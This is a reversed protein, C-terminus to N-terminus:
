IKQIAQVLKEVRDCYVDANIPTGNMLFGDEICTVEVKQDNKYFVANCNENGSQWSSTADFYGSIRTDQAAIWTFTNIHPRTRRIGNLVTRCAFPTSPNWIFIPQNELNENLPHLFASESFNCSEICQPYKVFYYRWDEENNLSIWPTPKSLYEKIIENLTHECDPQTQRLRKYSDAFLYFAHKVKENSNTLGVLWQNETKGGFRVRENTIPLYFDGSTALLARTLLLGIENCPTFLESLLPPSLVLQGQADLIQGITGRLFPFDEAEHYNKLVSSNKAVYLAKQKEEAMQSFMSNIVKDDIEALVKYGTNAINSFLHETIFKVINGINEFRLDPTYEGELRSRVYRIRTLANRIIRLYEQLRSKDTDNDPVAGYKTCWSIASFVLIKQMYSLSKSDITLVGDKLTEMPLFTDILNDDKDWLTLAKPGNGIIENLQKFFDASITLSTLLLEETKLGLINPSNFISDRVLEFNFRVAGGSYFPSVTRQVKTGKSWIMEFQLWLYCLITNDVQYSYQEVPIGKLKYRKSIFNWFNKSWVGDINNWYDKSLATERNLHKGFLAKFNEYDTLRKGRSNMKIYLEEGKGFKEIPLFQFIIPSKNEFMSYVDDLTGLVPHRDITDLMTLMASVTPDDKWILMFWSSDQIAASLSNDFETKKRFVDMHDCLRKCFETSSTRTQYTFKQLLNCADGRDEKAAYYWHILFLTTLRQQGDIPELINNNVITGYIFDLSLPPTIEDEKARKIANAISDLFSNRIQEATDTKRGQAYDRQIIPIRVSCEKLLYLFTYQQNQVPQLLESM